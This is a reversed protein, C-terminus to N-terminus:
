YVFDDPLQLRCSDEMEDVGEVFVDGGVSLFIVRTDDGVTSHHGFLCSSCVVEIQLRWPPYEPQVIGSRHGV